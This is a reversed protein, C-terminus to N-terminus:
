LFGGSLGGGIGGSGGGVGISSGGAGGSGGLGISSGEGRGPFGGRVPENAACEAEEANQM